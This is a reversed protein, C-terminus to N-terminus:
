SASDQCVLFTMLLSCYMNCIIVLAKPALWLEQLYGNTIPSGCVCSLYTINAVSFNSVFYLATNNTKKMKYSMEMFKVIDLAEM